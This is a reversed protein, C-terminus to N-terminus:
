KQKLNNLKSIRLGKIHKNIEEITAYREIDDEISLFKSGDVFEIKIYGYYDEDRSYIHLIRGIKDEWIEVDYKDISTLVYDGVKYIFDM